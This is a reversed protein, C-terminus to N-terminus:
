KKEGKGDTDVSFGNENALLRVGTEEDIAQALDDFTVFDTDVAEYLQFVKEAFDGLRKRGFGYKDRLVMLSTLLVVPIVRRSVERMADDHLAELDSRKVRYVAEGSAKARGARRREARNM